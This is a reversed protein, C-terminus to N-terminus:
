AGKRKPSIISIVADWRSHPFKYFTRQGDNDVLRYRARAVKPSIGISAAAETLTFETELPEGFEGNCALCIHDHTTLGPLNDSTLSDHTQYGNGLYDIGCHPCTGCHPFDARHDEATLDEHNVPTAAEILEIFRAKSYSTPKVNRGTLSNFRAVLDAAPLTTLDTM